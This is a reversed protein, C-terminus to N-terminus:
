QRRCATKMMVEGATGPAVSQWNEDQDTNTELVSGAGDYEIVTKVRLQDSRCKMEYLVLAYNGDTNKHDEKMWTKLVTTKPDCTTKRPNYWFHKNASQGLSFWNDALKSEALMDGHSEYYVGCPSYFPKDRSASTNSVPKTRTRAPASTTKEPIIKGGLVEENAHQAFVATSLVLLATVLIPTRM